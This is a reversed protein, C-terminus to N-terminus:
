LLSTQSKLEALLENVTFVPISSQAFDKKNRTVICDADVSIASDTQVADEFDKWDSDMAGIVIQAKLDSVAMFQLVSKIRDKVLSLNYKKGVYMANVVSLALTSIQIRGIYGLAFIKKAEEYFEGRKCVFDILINTDLFVKMM